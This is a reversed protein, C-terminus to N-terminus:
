SEKQDKSRLISDREKNLDSYKQVLTKYEEEYNNNSISDKLNEYKNKFERLQNKLEINEVQLKSNDQFMNKITAKYQACEDTKSKNLQNLETICNEYEIKM